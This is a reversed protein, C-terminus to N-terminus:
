NIITSINILKTIPIHAYNNKEFKGRLTNLCDKFTLEAISDKKIEYYCLEDTYLFVAYAKNDSNEYLQKVQKIFKNTGYITEPYEEKKITRSKLEISVTSGNTKHIFTWDIVAYRSKKVTYDTNLNINLLHNFYNIIMDKYLIENKKGMEAYPRCNNMFEANTIKETM